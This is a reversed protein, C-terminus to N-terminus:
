WLEELYVLFVYLWESVVTPYTNNQPPPQNSLTTEIIQHYVKGKDSLFNDREQLQQLM